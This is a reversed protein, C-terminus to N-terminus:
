QHDLVLDIVWCGRVHEGAGRCHDLVEAAECGAEQLADALVPMAEFSQKAYIRGAIAVATPTRWAPDFAVPRFPNGAVDRLLAVQAAEERREIEARKVPGEGPALPLHSWIEDNGVAWVAMRAVWHTVLRPRAVSAAANDAPRAYYDFSKKGLMADKQFAMLEARSILKDAYQESATVARRSRPDKILRWISRCCACAFLRQKRNSARGRLSEVMRKPDNCALWQPSNM